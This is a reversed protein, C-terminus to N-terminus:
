RLGAALEFAIKAKSRLESKKRLRNAPLDNLLDNHHKIINITDPIIRRVPRVENCHALALWVSKSLRILAISIIDLSFPNNITGFRM